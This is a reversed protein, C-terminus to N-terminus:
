NPYLHNWTETSKNHMSFNTHVFFLKILENPTLSMKAGRPIGFHAHEKIFWFLFNKTWVEVSVGFM